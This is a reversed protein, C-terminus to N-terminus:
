ETYSSCWRLFWLWGIVMDREYFLQAALGCPLCNSSGCMVHFHVFFFCLLLNFMHLTSRRSHLVFM